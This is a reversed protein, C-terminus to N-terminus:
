AVPRLVTCPNGVAVVHEPIDHTVVSGGGIVSHSGITVGPMVHVGGGIWVNDGITIAKAWELGQQRREADLPHVATYLGCLPGIFVNDGLTVPACDLIVCGHNAFCNEGMCINYGYDCWFPSLILCRSGMGGLLRRLLAQREAIQSPPLANYQFCLDKCRRQEAQLAPDAAADYLQGNDRKAKETMM